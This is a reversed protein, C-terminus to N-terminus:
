WQSSEKKTKMGVTKGNAKGANKQRWYQQIVLTAENIWNEDRVRGEVDVWAFLSRNSSGKGAPKIKGGAVLIRMEHAEFGLLWGAQQATLRAPHHWQSLFQRRDRNM